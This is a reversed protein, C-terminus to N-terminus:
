CKWRLSCNLCTVFTTMPEDASRTQLQYYSCMRKKCRGCKYIDTSTEPRIEYLLKNTKNKADLETKWREPFLRSPIMSALEGPEFEKEILRQFLRKNGIYSDPNLNAYISLCKNIYTDKFIKNNWNKIIGKKHSIKISYDYIGKEIKKAIKDDKILLSFKKIIKKRIDKMYKEIIKNILIIIM